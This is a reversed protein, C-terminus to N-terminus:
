EHEVRQDMEGYDFVHWVLRLNSMLATGVYIAQRSGHRYRVESLVGGIAEFDLPNGTGAIGLHRRAKPFAPDVLAWLCLQGGQDAVHLLKAKVPMEVSIEDEIPLVFKYIVLM